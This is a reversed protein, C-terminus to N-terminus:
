AASSSSNTKWSTHTQNPARNLARPREQESFLPKAPQAYEFCDGRETATCDLRGPLSFHAALVGRGTLRILCVQGSCLVRGVLTRSSAAGGARAIALVAAGGEKKQALNATPEAHRRAPRPHCAISM